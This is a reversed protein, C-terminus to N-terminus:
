GRRAKVRGRSTLTGRPKSLVSRKEPGTRGRGMGALSMVETAVLVRTVLM